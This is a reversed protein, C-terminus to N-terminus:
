TGIGGEGGDVERPDIDDLYGNETCFGGDRGGSFAAIGYDLITRKIDKNLQQIQEALKECNEKDKTEELQDWLKGRENKMAELQEGAKAMLELQKKRHTEPDNAQQLEKKLQELQTKLDSIKGENESIKEESCSFLFFM